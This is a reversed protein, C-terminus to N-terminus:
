VFVQFGYVRYIVFAINGWSGVFYFRSVRANFMVYLDLGLYM